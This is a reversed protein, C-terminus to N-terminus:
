VLSPYSKSFILKIYLFCLYYFVWSWYNFAQLFTIKNPYWALQYCQHLVSIQMGPFYSANTLGHKSFSWPIKFHAWFNNGVWQKSNYTEWQWALQVSLLLEEACQGFKNNPFLNLSSLLLAFLLGQEPCYHGLLLASLFWWHVLGQELLFQLEISKLSKSWRWDCMPDTSVMQPTNLFTCNRDWTMFIQTGPLYQNQQRHSGERVHFSLLLQTKGHLKVISILSIWLACLLM